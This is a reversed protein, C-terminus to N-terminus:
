FKIPSAAAVRFNMTSTITHLNVEYCCNIIKLDDAYVKNSAILHVVTNKLKLQPFDM